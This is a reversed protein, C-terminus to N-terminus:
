DFEIRNNEINVWKLDKESKKRRKTSPDAGNATSITPSVMENNEQGDDAFSTSSLYNAFGSQSNSNFNEMSTSLLQSASTIHHPNTDMLLDSQNEDIGNGDNKMLLDSDMPFKISSLDNTNLHLHRIPSPNTSRSSPSHQDTTTNTPLRTNHQQM